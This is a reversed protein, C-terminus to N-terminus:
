SEMDALVKRMLDCENTAVHGEQDNSRFRDVFDGPM